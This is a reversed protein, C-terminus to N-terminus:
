RDLALPNCPVRYRQQMTTGHQTADRHNQIEICAWRPLGGRSHREGWARLAARECYYATHSGRGTVIEIEDPICRPLLGGSAEALQVKFQRMQNGLETPPVECALADVRSFSWGSKFIIRLLDHVDIPVLGTKERNDPHVGVVNVRYWQKKSLNYESIVKLLNDQFAEVGDKCHGAEFEDIRPNIIDAFLRVRLEIDDMVRLAGRACDFVTHERLLSRAM